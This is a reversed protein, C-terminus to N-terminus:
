QNNYHSIYRPQETGQYLTEHDAFIDGFNRWGYEDIQERKRYFNNEGNLGQQILVALPDGRETTLWPMAQSQALYEADLQPVLPAYSWALTNAQESYSLWLSRTKREGGQLEHALGNALQAFLDCRLQTPSAELANPFNQWFEPVSIQLPHEGHWFSFLPNARRGKKLLANESSLQYGQFSTTIVGDKNVHNASHWNEGGSSDQHLFVSQLEFREGPETLCDPIIYSKKLSPATLVLSFRNFHLSGSDGLDWLGGIHASRRPNHLTTKLQILGDAHYITVTLKINAIANETTLLGTGKTQVLTKTNDSRLIQWDELDFATINNQRDNLEFQLKLSVDPTASSSISIANPRFQYIREATEIVLSGAKKQCSVPNQESVAAADNLRLQLQKETNAAIDVRSNILLWRISGDPWYLTPEANLPLQLKDDWLSFLTNAPCIGAAFPVGTTVPEQQRNLGATEKLFITVSLSKLTETQTHPNTVTNHEAAM